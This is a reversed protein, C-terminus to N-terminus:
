AAVQKPVFLGVHQTVFYRLLVTSLCYGAGSFISMIMQRITCTWVWSLYGGNQPSQKCEPVCDVAKMSVTSNIIVITLFSMRLKIMSLKPRMPM